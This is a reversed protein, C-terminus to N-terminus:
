KKALWAVFHAESKLKLKKHKFGLDSMMIELEKEKLDFTMNPLGFESGDKRRRIARAERYRKEPVKKTYFFLEELENKGIKLYCAMDKHPKENDPFKDIYLGGRDNLRDYFIKLIKRYNKLSTKENIKQKKNWGGDAYIFSNGRCFIFDFKKNKYIKPIDNWYIKKIQSGVKLKKAKRKFVGVEDNMPDMCEVNYGKERLHLAIFGTGACSDLIKSKKTIGIKKFLVLIEKLYKNKDYLMNYVLADWLDAYKPEKNFKLIKM